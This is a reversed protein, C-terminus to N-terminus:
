VNNHNTRPHVSISENLYKDIANRFDPFGPCSTQKIRKPFFRKFRVKNNNENKDHYVTNQTLIGKISKDNIFKSTM